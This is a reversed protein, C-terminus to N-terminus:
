CLARCMPITDSCKHLPNQSSLFLPYKHIIFAPKLNPGKDKKKAKIEKKKWKIVFM